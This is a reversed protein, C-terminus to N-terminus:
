WDQTKSKTAKVTSVTSEQTELWGNFTKHEGNFSYLRGKLYQQFGISVCSTAVYTVEHASVHQFHRHSVIGVYFGFCVQKGIFLRAQSFTRSKVSADPLKCPCSIHCQHSFLM